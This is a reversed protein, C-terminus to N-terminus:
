FRALPDTKTVGGDANGQSNLAKSAPQVSVLVGNITFSGGQKLLKLFLSEHNPSWEESAKIVDQKTVEVGNFKILVGKRISQPKIM